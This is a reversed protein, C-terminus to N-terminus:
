VKDKSEAFDITHEQAEPPVFLEYKNCFNLIKVRIEIAKTYNGSKLNYRMSDVMNNLVYQKSPKLGAEIM